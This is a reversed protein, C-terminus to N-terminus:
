SASLETEYDAVNSFHMLLIRVRQKLYCRLKVQELHGAWRYSGFAKRLGEEYGALDKPLRM